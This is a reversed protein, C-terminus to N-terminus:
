GAVRGVLAAMVGQWAEEAGKGADGFVKELMAMQTGSLEAELAAGAATLVLQKVRRDHEAPTASVLGKELLERLPAHLAQKSVGLVGLLATVAIGPSRAVFYLVRHHVRGLGREALIRDPPTTFARYAFFFVEIAERLEAQRKLDIM